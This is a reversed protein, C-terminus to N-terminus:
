LIYLNICKCKHKAPARVAIILFAAAAQVPDSNYAARVVRQAKAWRSRAAARDSAAQALQDLDRLLRAVRSDSDGLLTSEGVAAFAIVDPTIAVRQSRSTRFFLINGKCFKETKETSIM